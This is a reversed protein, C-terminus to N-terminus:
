RFKEDHTKFMIKWQGMRNIAMFSLLLELKSPIVLMTFIINFEIFQTFHPMTRIQILLVQDFKGVVQANQM